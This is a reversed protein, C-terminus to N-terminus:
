QKYVKGGIKIETFKQVLGFNKALMFNREAFGRDKMFTAYYYSPYASCVMCDYRFTIQDATKATVTPNEIGEAKQGSELNFNAAVRSYNSNKFGQVLNARGDIRFYLDYERFSPEVATKNRSRLVFFTQGNLQETGTVEVYNGDDVKWYNGIELPLYDSGSVPPVSSSDNCGAALLCLAGFAIITKM